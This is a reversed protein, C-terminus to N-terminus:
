MHTTILLSQFKEHLTRVNKADTLAGKFMSLRLKAAALNLLLALKADNMKKKDEEADVGWLYNVYELGKQYFKLAEPFKSQSFLANGKTKNELAMAIKEEPTNAPASFDLLEVEFQLYSNPPISPPSGAAGYGMEPNCILLCTEGLKMTAVGEDWGKIVQGKGMSFSFLTDRDRSSDFKEGGPFLTGVYHVNAESGKPIEPGGGRILIKKFLGPVIEEFDDPITPQADNNSKKETSTGCNNNDINSSNVTTDPQVLETIKEPEVTM